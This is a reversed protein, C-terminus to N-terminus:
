SAIARVPPFATGPKAFYYGQLMTCGLRSAAEAQEANEIGESIVDIKEERAFEVLHRVLRSTRADAAAAQVMRMDLKVFEPELLALANLGSYGSGLGDLAVRFGLWRLKALSSRFRRYDAIAAVETVELVIRRASRTMFPELELLEPDGLEHPHLNVFLVLPEPLRDLPAVAQERLLRGLERVKGTREAVRILDVPGKFAPHQPRCLAEYGLVQHSSAHVIPQYVFQFAGTAMVRELAIVQRAEGHGAAEDDLPALSPSYTIVRNRGLAKAGYRANQRPSARRGISSDIASEGSCALRM